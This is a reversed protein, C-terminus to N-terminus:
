EPLAQNSSEALADNVLARLEDHIPDSARARADQRKPSGPTSAVIAELEGIDLDDTRDGSALLRKSGFLRAWLSTSERLTFNGSALSQADSELDTVLLRNAHILAEADRYAAAQTTGLCRKLAKSKHGGRAVFLATLIAIEGCSLSTIRGIKPGGCSKTYLYSGELLLAGFGLATSAVEITTDVPVEIRSGQPLNELLFILGMLKAINTTLVVDHRLENAPIQILWQEGLHVLRPEPSDLPEHSDCHGCAGSGCHQSSADAPRTDDTSASSPARESRQAASCGAGCCQHQESDLDDLGLVKVKVPVDDMGAHSKMRRVLKKASKEDATFADPFFSSDPLVLPRVGVEHSLRAYFTAMRRVLHNTVEQPPLNM